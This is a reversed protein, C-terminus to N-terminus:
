LFLSASMFVRHDCSDYARKADLCIAGGIVFVRHDCSWGPIPLSKHPGHDLKWGVQSLSDLELELNIVFFGRTTQIAFTSNGFFTYDVLYFEGDSDHPLDPLKRSTQTHPDYIEFDHLDLPYYSNLRRSFVLIRKGDPTPTAIPRCKTHLLSGASLLDSQTVYGLEDTTPYHHLDAAFVLKDWSLFIYVMSNLVCFAPWSFDSMRFRLAPPLQGSEGNPDIIHM